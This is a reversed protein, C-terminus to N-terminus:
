CTYENFAPVEPPSWRRIQKRGEIIKVVEKKSKKAKAKVSTDINTDMELDEMAEEEEGENEVHKLMGAAPSKILAIDRAVEKRDKAREQARAVNQRKALFHAQRKGKIEEVRKMAEVTQTWLERGHKTPINRKKEFEFSPDVALEKGASKRFAKTWKAKRPGM